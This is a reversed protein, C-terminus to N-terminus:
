VGRINKSYGKVPTSARHELLDRLLKDYQRVRYGWTQEALARKQAAQGLTQRKRDNELLTIIAQATALEDTEPVSLGTQGHIIAETLGSNASVVAPKGCLAAEVVAIGFGEFDGNRTHRSTMVFVDCCNLYRVLNRTEVRGLFHVYDSVGLQRALELYEEKKSPLGVALYHTNPFKKLIHPLAGIVVDQGKRETVNGTTLLLRAEDLGLNARFTDVERDPLVRFQDNDAGNPIVQVRKPQIGRTVMQRRTYESVCVTASSEQFSWRNLGHIWGTPVGFEIGHGVAVWPLQYWRNLFATLWVSRQGSALIISPKWRKIWYSVARWRYLSKLLTTPIPRFRVVPFSQAENFESIEADSAYDQSSIVLVDWGLRELHRAVQYAHTGIGGPGPPFESSVLLLRTESEQSM